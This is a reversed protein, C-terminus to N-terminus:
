NEMQVWQLRNAQDSEMTTLHLQTLVGKEKKKYMSIEEEQTQIAAKNFDM